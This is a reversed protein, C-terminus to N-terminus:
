AGFAWFNQFFDKIKEFEIEQKLSFTNKGKKGKKPKQFTLLKKSPKPKLFLNHCWFHSEIKLTFNNKAKKCKKPLPNRFFQM